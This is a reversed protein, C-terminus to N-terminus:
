HHLVGGLNEFHLISLKCHYSDIGMTLEKELSKLEDTTFGYSQLIPEVSGYDLNISVM